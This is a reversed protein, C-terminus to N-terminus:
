LNVHPVVGAKKLLKVMVGDEAHPKFAQRTYGVSADFGGVVITDKLSVPIGAVRGQLNVGDKAWSEAEPLLLETM